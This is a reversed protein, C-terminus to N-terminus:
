EWGHMGTYRFTMLGPNYATFRKVHGDAFLINQGENHRKWQMWNESGVPGGVCNQSYDDKDADFTMM